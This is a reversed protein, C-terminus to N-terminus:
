KDKQEKRKERCMRFRHKWILSPFCGSKSSKKLKEGKRSPKLNEETHVASNELDRGVDTASDDEDDFQQKERLLEHLKQKKETLSPKSRDVPM